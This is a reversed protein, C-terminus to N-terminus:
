YNFGSTSYWKPIKKKNITLVNLIGSNTKGHRIKGSSKNIEYIILNNVNVLKCTFYCKTLIAGM